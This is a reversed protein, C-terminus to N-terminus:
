ECWFIKVITIAVSHYPADLINKSFLLHPEYLFTLYGFIGVVIYVFAGSLTGYRMVSAM